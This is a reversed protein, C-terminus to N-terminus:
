KNTEQQAIDRQQTVRAFLDTLSGDIDWPSFVIDARRFARNIRRSIAYLVGCKDYAGPDSLTLTVRRRNGDVLDFREVEDWSVDLRQRAPTLTVGQPGIRLIPGKLSLLWAGKAIPVAFISAFALLGAIEWPGPAITVLTILSQALLCGALLITWAKTRSPYIDFTNDAEQKM